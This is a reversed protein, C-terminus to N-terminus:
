RQALVKVSVGARWIEKDNRDLLVVTQNQIPKGPVAPSATFTGVVNNKDDVLVFSQARLEKAPGAQAQVPLPTVYRSLVGGLLGAALALSLNLKRHMTQNRRTRITSSCFHRSQSTGKLTAPKKQLAFARAL